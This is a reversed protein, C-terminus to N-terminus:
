NNIKYKITQLLSKIIGKPLLRIHDLTLNWLYPYQPFKKILIIEALLYFRDRRSYEPPNDELRVQAPFPLWHGVVQEPQFFNAQLSLGLLRDLCWFPVYKFPGVLNLAESLDRITAQVLDNKWVKKDFNEIHLGHQDKRPRFLALLDISNNLPAIPLELLDTFDNYKDTSPQAKSFVRLSSIDPVESWPAQLKEKNGYNFGEGRLRMVWSEPFRQFYEQTWTVIKPNIYEDCNLSLVYIGTANFLGTLRQIVEGRLSCNIQKFRPDTLPIKELTPPHVLIIELNGEVQLLSSLWTDELGERTPIVISLLPSSM